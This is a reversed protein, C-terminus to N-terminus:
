RQDVGQKQAEKGQLIDCLNAKKEATRQDEPRHLVTINKVASFIIAIEQITFKPIERM